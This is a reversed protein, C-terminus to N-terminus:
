ARGEWGHHAAASCPHDGLTHSLARLSFSQGEPSLLPPTSGGLPFLGWSSCHPTAPSPAWGKSSVPQQTSPPRTSPLGSRFCACKPRSDRSCTLCDHANISTLMPRPNTRKRQGTADLNFFVPLCLQGPHLQPGLPLPDARLHLSPEAEGASQPGAGTGGGRHLRSKGRLDSPLSAGENGTTSQPSAGKRM